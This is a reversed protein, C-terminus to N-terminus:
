YCSRQLWKDFQFLKIIKKFNYNGFMNLILRQEKHSIDIGFHAIKKM